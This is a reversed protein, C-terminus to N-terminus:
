RTREIIAGAKRTNYNRVTYCCDVGKRELIAGKFDNVVFARRFFPMFSIDVQIGGEGLCGAVIVALGLGGVRGIFVPM